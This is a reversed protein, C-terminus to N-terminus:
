YNFAFRSIFSVNPIAVNVIGAARKEFLYNIFGNKLNSTQTMQEPVSNGYPVALLICHENELLLKRQVGELQSQELRMRQLIRLPTQKSDNTMQVLCKDAIETNGNVFNMAIQATDNKITFSGTWIVNKPEQFETFGTIYNSSDVEAENQQSASRVLKPEVQNQHNFLQQTQPQQQQLNLYQNISPLYQNMQPQQVNFGSMMMQSVYDMGSPFNQSKLQQQQLHLPIQSDYSLHPPVQTQQQQLAAGILFQPLKESGILFPSYPYQTTSALSTQSNQFQHIQQQQQQQLQQQQLEYEKALQKKSKSAFKSTQPIQNQQQISNTPLKATSSNVHSQPITQMQSQTSSPRNSINQQNSADYKLRDLYYEFPQNNASNQGYNSLTAMFLNADSLVSQPNPALSSSTSSSNLGLPPNRNTSHQQQKVNKPSPSPSPSPTQHRQQSQTKQPQPPVQQQNQQFQPPTLFPLPYKAYADQWTRSAEISNLSPLMPPVFQNQQSSGQYIQQQQLSFQNQYQSYNIQSQNDLAENIEKNKINTQQQNIANFQTSGINEASNLLSNSNSNVQPSSSSKNSNNNNNNNVKTISTISTMNPNSFSSFSSANSHFNNQSTTLQELIIKTVPDNLGMMVQTPSTSQVQQQHKSHIPSERQNALPPTTAIIGTPQPTSVKKRQQNVVETNAIQIQQQQQRINKTHKNSSIKPELTDLAVDPKENQRQAYSFSNQNTETFNSFQTKDQTQSSSSSRRHNIIETPEQVKFTELKPSISPASEFKIKTEISEESYFAPEIKQHENLIPFKVDLQTLADLQQLPEVESKICNNDSSLKQSTSEALATEVLMDINGYNKTRFDVVDPKEDNQENLPSAQTPSASKNATVIAEKENITAFENPIETLIPLNVKKPFEDITEIASLLNNLKSDSFNGNNFLENQKNSQLKFPSFNGNAVQDIIDNVHHPTENNLNNNLNSLSLTLSMASNLDMSSPNFSISSSIQQSSLVSLTPSLSSLSHNSSSPIIIQTQQQDKQNNTSTDFASNDYSKAEIENAIKCDTDIAPEEELTKVESVQESSFAEDDRSELVSSNINDVLKHDLETSSEVLSKAPSEVLNSFSMQTTEGATKPSKEAVKEITSSEIPMVTEDIEAAQVLAEEVKNESQRTEKEIEPPTHTISEIVSKDDEKANQELDKDDKVSEENPELLSAQFSKPTSPNSLSHKALIDLSDILKGGEVAGSSSAAKTIFNELKNHNEEEGEVEDEIFLTQPLKTEEAPLKTDDTESKEKTEQQENQSVEIKADMKLDHSQHEELAVNEKSEEDKQEDNEFKKCSIKENEELPDVTSSSSSSSSSFASSVSNDQASSIASKNTAAYISKVVQDVEHEDEEYTPQEMMKKKNKLNNQMNKSETKIINSLTLPEDDIGGGISSSSSSSLVSKSSNTQESSIQQQQKIAQKLTNVSKLSNVKNKVSNAETVASAKKTVSNSAVKGDKSSSKEEVVAKTANKNTSANSASSNTSTSASSSLPKKVSPTNAKTNTGSSHKSQQTSSATATKSSVSASPKSSASNSNSAATTTSSSGTKTPKESSSSATKNNSNNNAVAHNEDQESQLKRKKSVLDTSTNTKSSLLSINTCNSTTSSSSATSDTRSRKLQAVAQNSQPTTTPTSKAIKHSVEKPAMATTAVKPLAQQHQKQHQEVNTEESDFLSDNSRQRKRKTESKEKDKDLNAKKSKHAGSPEEDSSKRRKKVMLSNEEESKGSKSMSSETIVKKATTTSKEADTTTKKAAHPKAVPAESDSELLASIKAKSKVRAKDESKRSSISASKHSCASSRSENCSSDGDENDGSSSGSSSNSSDDDDDNSSDNSSDSSPSSEGESSESHLEDKNETAQKTKLQKRKNKQKKKKKKSKKENEDALDGRPRAKVRDYMSVGFNLTNSSLLFALERSIGHM